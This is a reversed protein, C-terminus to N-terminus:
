QGDRYFDLAECIMKNTVYHNIEIKGIDRLLTFNINNDQRATKAVTNKKDHMMLELLHVYDDCSIQLQGYTERILNVAKRLSDSPFGLVIHSLYLEAIMGWAVAYGHLAGRGTEHSFTELAHGVTHGFNLARRIGKEEPDIRVVNRKVEVSERLLPRLEELDFKEIDYNLLSTWHEKNSILGHKLMEAYGSRRNEADLSKFFNTDIIVACGENIVGVENKLGNLNIGTKGGVAADVAGLLTTPVNIYDMGRKFTSAAMGGLDTVMGGGLNIMISRRNAEHEQLETWVHVLSDINKADDGAAIEIVYAERASPSMKQLSDLCLRKTNEDTLIYVNRKGGEGTLAAIAGEIDKGLDDTIIVNQKM